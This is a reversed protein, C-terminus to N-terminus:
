ETKRYEALSTVILNALTEIENSNHRMFTEMIYRTDLLIGLVFKHNPTNNDYIEWDATGVSVFKYNEDNYRTKDFPMVFANYIKNKKYGLHEFAYDGYTIQKQISSTAPLDSARNTIGFNYYKADIIFLKDDLYIITDPELASSQEIYGSQAAIHWKAHPFFREINDEGFVYDILSEWVYEFRYVGFSPEVTDTINESAQSIINIMSKLLNRKNDNFTNSLASQLVSLFVKKNLKIQPKLPLSDSGLYLWGLKKFSEYVCYEHIRTLLSNDNNKQTKIIFDLYVINGDNIQPQIQQITRKWNIKGRSAKLFEAEKEIYYGHLLFDRIIHQYSLLPFSSLNNGKNSLNKEGDLRERFRYLVALLNIIDKRANDENQTEVKYGRPFYVIPQGNEFKLGVFENDGLVCNRCINTLM